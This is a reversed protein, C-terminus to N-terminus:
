EVRWVRLQTNSTRRTVFKGPLNNKRRYSTAATLRNRDVLEMVFSDGVEMEDLPFILSRKFHPPIAVDKEVKYVKYNTMNYRDINPM